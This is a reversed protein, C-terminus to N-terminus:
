CCGVASDFRDNTTQRQLENDAIVQLDENM